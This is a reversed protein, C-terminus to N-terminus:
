PRRVPTGCEPRSQSGLRVVCLWIDTSGEPTGAVVPMSTTQSLPAKAVKSVGPQLVRIFRNLENKQAM